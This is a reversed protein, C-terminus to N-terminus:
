KLEVTHIVLDQDARPKLPAKFHVESIIWCNRMIVWACLSFARSKRGEVDVCERSSQYLAFVGYKSHCCAFCGNSPGHFSFSLTLSRVDRSGDTFNMFFFSWCKRLVTDYWKVFLIRASLLSLIYRRVACRSDSTGDLHLHPFLSMVPLRPHHCGSLM